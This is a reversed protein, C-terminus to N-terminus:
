RRKMKLPRYYKVQSKQAESKYQAMYEGWAEKKRGEWYKVDFSSDEAQIEQALLHAVEYLLLNEHSSELVIEDTDATPKEIFVGSSNKFLFRSYYLLEYYSPLRSYVSDIRFDVAADGDYTFTFYLYDITAPDVTGTETASSWDFRLLNWGTTFSGFHPATITKSWYNSADNGWRLTANTIATPCYFWVFMSSQEDHDEIDTDTFDTCSVTATTGVGSVDFKISNSGTMFFNSDVAINTADDAVAWTGNTILSECDNLLIGSTLSKSIRLVKTGNRYETTFTGSEKGLDFQENNTQSNNDSILRDQKQIRIDIIKNGKLDSPASYDYVKDYLANALLATRKTEIPDIKLLLNNGGEFILNYVDQVKNLSMGHIKSQLRTKFDSITM